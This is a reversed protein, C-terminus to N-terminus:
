PLTDYDNTNEKDGMVQEALNAFDEPETTLLNEYTERDWIEIYDSYAFLVLERSIGAYRLLPRPLLVRSSSDMSLRTAGAFFYRQFERNKVNFRNLKKVKGSVLEWENQPYLAICREFGRNAVFRENAEPPLQKKLGSPVMLRGKTDLKCYYEGVIDAM